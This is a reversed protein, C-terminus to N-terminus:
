MLDETKLRGRGKKNKKKRKGKGKPDDFCDEAAGRCEESRQVLLEAIRDASAKVAAYHGEMLAVKRGEAAPGDAVAAFDINPYRSRVFVLAVKPRAAIQARVSNM